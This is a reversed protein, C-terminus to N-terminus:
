NALPLQLDPAIRRKRFVVRVNERWREDIGVFEWEVDPSIYRLLCDTSPHVHFAPAVLFLLPPDKSLVRGGFYGYHLFEDRGHHWRVRSWYDLGQMPLHIDEDAKLEVVALRGDRTLTLVDIMARDSASFAPVQSYVSETELREDLVSVDRVVLSELWREPHLRFMPYQRTGYPHRQDRLTLLLNAFVTYNRDELVREEPGVGFVIEQRSRFTAAEAGLRARAFELGRWRFAVEAPSLVVVECHPLITQVREISDAFRALAATENPAHVLRTAVNGRDSCDIEVVADDREDFEYLRWKAASQNLNAMRERVLGSTGSPVFLCLGEVLSSRTHGTKIGQPHHRCSDLWLVGFTLSADISSQTESANLGLIVFASQGRRIVGRAYIPGFSKELDVNSTLRDITFEPFHRELARRLKAEYAIRSARKASPSRRDRERCIELKCPRSQGLKQVALRLSGNKIEADLVRRVTNREASWLHLLCKNYEGSISYKAEALDFAVAGDELVVAGTADRLFQQVTRTLADPTM